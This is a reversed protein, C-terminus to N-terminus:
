RLEATMKNLMRMVEDLLTEAHRYDLKEGFPVRRLVEIYTELEAGSGYAVLLFSRFDKRTSRRSGEAINAPISVASRRMQSTLGYREETPFLATLSYVAVVLEISKQWVVLDKYSRIDM